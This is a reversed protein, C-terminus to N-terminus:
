EPRRHPEDLVQGGGLLAQGPQDGPESTEEVVGVAGSGSTRWRPHRQDGVESGHEGVATQGCAAEIGPRDLGLEVAPSCQHGDVWCEWADDDDAAMRQGDGADFDERGSADSGEEVPLQHGTGVRGAVEVGEEGAQGDGAAPLRARPHREPGKSRSQSSSSSSMSRGYERDAHV